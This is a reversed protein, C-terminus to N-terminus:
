DRLHRRPIARHPIRSGAPGLGLWVLLWISRLRHGPYGGPYVTGVTARQTKVAVHYDVLFDATAPDSVQTLGKSKLAHEIATKLQNRNAETNWDRNSEM